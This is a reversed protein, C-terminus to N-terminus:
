KRYIKIVFMNILNEMQKREIIANFTVPILLCDYYHLIVTLLSQISNLCGKTPELKNLILYAM